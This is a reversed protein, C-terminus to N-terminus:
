GSLALCPVVTAMLGYESTAALAGASTILRTELNWPTEGLPWSWPLKFVAAVDALYFNYKQQKGLFPTKGSFGFRPGISFLTTDDALCPTCILISLGLIAILNFLGSRHILHMPLRKVGDHWPEDIGGIM